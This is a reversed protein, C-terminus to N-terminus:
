KETKLYLLQGNELVLESHWDEEQTLVNQKEAYEILYRNFIHTNIQAHLGDEAIKSDTLQITNIILKAVLFNGNYIKKLEDKGITAQQKKDFQQYKDAFLAMLKEPEKQMVFTSHQSLLQKIAEDTIKDLAFASGSYLALVFCLYRM